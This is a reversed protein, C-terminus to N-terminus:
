YQPLDQKHERILQRLAEVDSTDPMRHIMRHCNACLVLFDTDLRYAVRQGQALSGLPRRHHAEIFQAGLPGYYDEFRFSCAECVYGKIQKVRESVGAQREIKRHLKYQRQEDITQAAPREQAIEQAESPEISQELGGLYKLRGYMAVIDQLDHALREDMPLSEARYVRGLAHGAEYDGPLEQSSGLSISHDAFHKEYLQLRARMLTARSRLIERARRGFEDRVATAGQNLSLAITKETPNVLYVVYYGRTASTTIDPDFVSIWPVAAWNGKGPSGVVQYFSANQGLAQRVVDTAENRLLDAIPHGKQPDQKAATYELAIRSLVERLSPM